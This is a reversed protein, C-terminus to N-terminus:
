LEDAPMRTLGSDEFRNLVTIAQTEHFDRCGAIIGHL